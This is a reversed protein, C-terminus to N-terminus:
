QSQEFVARKMAEEMAEELGACTCLPRSIKGRVIDRATSMFQGVSDEHQFNEADQETKCVVIDPNIEWKRGGCWVPNMRAVFASRIPSDDVPSRFLGCMIRQPPLGHEECHKCHICLKKDIQSQEVFTKM